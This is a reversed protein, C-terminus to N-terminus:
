VRSLAVYSDEAYPVQASQRLVFSERQYTMGLLQCVANNAPIALLLSATRPTTHSCCCQQDISTVSMVSDVYTPIDLLRRYRM